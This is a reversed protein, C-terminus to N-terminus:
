VCVRVCESELVCLCEVVFKTVRACVCAALLRARASLRSLTEVSALAAAVLSTQSGCVLVCERVCVCAQACVHAWQCGRVCEVSQCVRACAM